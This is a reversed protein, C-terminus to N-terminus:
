DSWLEDPSFQLSKEKYRQMELQKWPLYSRFILLCPARRVWAATKTSDPGLWMQAPWCQEKDAARCVESINWPEHFKPKNVLPLLVMGSEEGFSIFAVPGFFNSFCCLPPCSLDLLLHPVNWLAFTASSWISVRGPRKKREQIQEDSIVDQIM